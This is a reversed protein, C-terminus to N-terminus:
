RSNRKAKEKQMMIMNKIFKKILENDGYILFQGNNEIRFSLSLETAINELTSKDLDILPEIRIWKQKKNLGIIYRSQSKEEAEAIQSAKEIQKLWKEIIEASFVEQAESILYAEVSCLLEGIKETMGACNRSNVDEINILSKAAKFNDMVKQPVTLRKRRFELIIEELIKWVAFAAM